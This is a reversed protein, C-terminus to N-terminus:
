QVPDAAIGRCLREFAESEPGLRGIWDAVIYVLGNADIALFYRGRDLEGIPTLQIGLTEGWDQFRDSEGLCLIPDLEFPTRARSIGPGRVDVSLGGFRALFSRGARHLSFGDDALLDFWRSTDVNRGPYWGAARLIRDTEESFTM